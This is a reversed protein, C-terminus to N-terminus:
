LMLGVCILMMLCLVGLWGNCRFVVVMGLVCLVNIVNLRSLGLLFSFVVILVSGIIM